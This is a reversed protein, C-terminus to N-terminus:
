FTFVLSALGGGGKSQGALGFGELQFSFYEGAKVNIGIEGFATAGGLDASNPNYVPGQPDTYTGSVKGDFEQEWALGFFLGVNESVNHTLRAGIRTRSSTTDDFNYVGDRDDRISDGKVSTYSFKGYINVNTADSIEFLHGLGLNFGYYDSDVAYHIGEGTVYLNKVKYDNDVSGIRGSVSVWTGGTFDHRLYLGGGFYDTDGEGNIDGVLALSNVTDYDGSGGEIFAGFSIAGAGTEMKRGGALNYGYQSLKVSSGTENEVTEGYFGVEILFQDVLGKESINSITSDLGRVSESVTLVSAATGELYPKYSDNGSDAAFTFNGDEDLQFLYGNLGISDHFSDTALNTIDAPDVASVLHITDGVKLRQELDKFSKEMDADYSIVDLLSKNDFDISSDAAITLMTDGNGIGTFDYTLAVSKAPDSYDINTGSIRNGTGMVKITDISYNTGLVYPAANNGNFVGGDKLTIKTFRLKTADTGILSNLTVSPTVATTTKAIVLDDVAFTLGGSANISFNSPRTINLTKTRLTVAGKDATSDSSLNLNGALTISRADLGAAGGVRDSPNGNGGTINLNGSLV